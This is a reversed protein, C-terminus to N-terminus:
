ESVVKMSRIVVPEVPVDKYIPHRDTTAVSEIRDVVDMGRVVHGFVAYGIGDQARDADLGRNDKTNIYFQSTASDPRSTRAMAITYRRNRLGNKAENRIPAHTNKEHLDATFGGGQIMFGKIVRHFITGDYFGSRVYQLFNAVTIPAKKRDLRLTIDGLSTEMLVVPDAARVPTSAFLATAVLVVALLTLTKRM